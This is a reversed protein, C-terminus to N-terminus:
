TIVLGWADLHMTGLHCFVKSVLVPAFAKSLIGWLKGIKDCNRLSMPFAKGIQCYSHDDHMMDVHRGGGVTLAMSHKAGAAIATIRNEPSLHIPDLCAIKHPLPLIIISQHVAHHPPHVAAGSAGADAPHQHEIHEVDTNHTNAVDQGQGQQLPAEHHADLNGGVAAVAMTQLQKHGLQGWSGEGWTFISGDSTLAMSHANGAAASVIRSGSLSPCLLLHLLAVPDLLAKSNLALNSSIFIFNFCAEFKTKSLNL